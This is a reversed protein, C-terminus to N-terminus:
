NAVEIHTVTFQGGMKEVSFRVKDGQKVTDLFAPNSVRFVMTMAPMDLNTLPGHKLTLKSAEKDVKRVEGESLPSSAVSAPAQPSEPAATQAHVATSAALAFFALTLFSKMSIKKMLLNCPFLASRLAHRTM